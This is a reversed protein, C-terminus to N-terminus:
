KIKKLKSLKTRYGTTENLKGIKKLYERREKLENKRIAVEKIERKSKKEEHVKKKRAQILVGTQQIKSYFRSILSESTEGDKKRM